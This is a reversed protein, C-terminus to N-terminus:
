KLLVAKQMHVRNGFSTRIFYIGSALDNANVTYNYSGSGFERNVVTMMKQGTISYLDISVNMRETLTFPITLTANFPNPYVPDLAYGDAVVAEETEVKVEVKELITENGSYDVDALTYVYTKGAEVSADTFAYKTSETTSGQGKLADDTSFDAIVESKQSEVKSKRSIVFGQNEVEASTEWELVVTGKVAKATFASLTVPLSQDADLEGPTCDAVNASTITWESTTWTPNGQSVTQNLGRVARSDEYEWAEGTGDVDVVGYADYLIGTTEDGGYFLFYGDDGNGTVSGYDLDATGAGYISDINSANGIVYTGGATLVGTLQISAHFGGNSQRDFYWIQSSFNIESGSANYLEVFRGNYDDAPDAVESIILAPIVPAATTTFTADDGYTTGESNVAKVRFHYTTEPDLESLNATVAVQIDGGQVPSENATIESGYSDTEGYQFTVTADAFNADVWGNLTASNHTIDGASGTSVEPASATVLAIGTMYINDVDWRRPNDTSYYKFAFVVDTGSIGSIDLLGSNSMTEEAQPLLFPIETWSSAEPTTYSTTYYAKLYNNVDQIGYQYATEFYLVDDSFNDLNM